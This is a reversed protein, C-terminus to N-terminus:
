QPRQTIARMLSTEAVIVACEVLAEMVESTVHEHLHGNVEISWDLSEESRSILLQITQENSTPHSSVVYRAGLTTSNARNGQYIELATRLTRPLRPDHIIQQIARQLTDTDVNVSQEAM